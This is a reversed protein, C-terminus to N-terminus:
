TIPTGYDPMEPLFRRIDDDLSLRGDQALLIVAAATFQKSVSGAEFITDPTAKIGHELEAMGWARRSITVGDRAVGIACGPTAESNWRSFSEDLRGDPDAGVSSAHASAALSAAILTLLMSKMM